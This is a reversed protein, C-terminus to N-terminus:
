QRRVVARVGRGGVLVGVFVRAYDYEVFLRWARLDDVGVVKAPDDLDGGGRHQPARPPLVRRMSGWGGVVVHTGFKIKTHQKLKIERDAYARVGYLDNTLFM